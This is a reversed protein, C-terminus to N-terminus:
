KKVSKKHHSHETSIESLGSPDPSNLLFFDCFGKELPLDLVTWQTHYLLCLHISHTEIIKQTDACTELHTLSAFVGKIIRILHLKYTHHHQYMSM